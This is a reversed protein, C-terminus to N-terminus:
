YNLSKNYIYVQLISHLSICQINEALYYYVNKNMLQLVVFSNYFRPKIVFELLVEVCSFRKSPVQVHPVDTVLQSQFLPELALTKLPKHIINCVIHIVLKRCQWGVQVPALHTVTNRFTCCVKILKCIM